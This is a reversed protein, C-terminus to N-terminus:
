FDTESLGTSTRKDSNDWQTNGCHAKLFVLTNSLCAELKGENVGWKLKQIIFNKNYKWTVSHLTNAKSHIINASTHLKWYEILEPSKM